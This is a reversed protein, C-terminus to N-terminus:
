HQDEFHLASLSLSLSLSLTLSFLPSPCLSLPLLLIGLLRGHDAWLGICPWFELVTLDHSAGFDPTLHKVSQAVWTGRSKSSKITGLVGMKCILFCLGSSSMAGLSGQSKLVGVSEDLGAM